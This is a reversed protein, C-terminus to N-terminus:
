KEQVQTGKQPIELIETHDLEAAALAVPLVQDM